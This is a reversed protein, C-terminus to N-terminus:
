EVDNYGELEEYLISPQHYKPREAKLRWDSSQFHIANAEVTAVATQTKQKLEVFSTVKTRYADGKVYGWFFFDQPTIDPSRLSRVIPGSRGTWLRCFAGYANEFLKKKKITRNEFQLFYVDKLSNRLKTISITSAVSM